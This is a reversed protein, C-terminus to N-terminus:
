HWAESAGPKLRSCPIIAPSMKILLEMEIFRDTEYTALSVAIVGRQNKGRSGRSGRLKVKHWGDCVIIRTRAIRSSCACVRQFDSSIQMECFLNARVRRAPGRGDTEM